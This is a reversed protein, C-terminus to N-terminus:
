LEQPDERLDIAFDKLILKMDSINSVERHMGSVNELKEIAIILAQGLIIRGRLSTIFSAAIHRRDSAEDAIVSNSDEVLLKTM